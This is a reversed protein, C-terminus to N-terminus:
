TKEKYYSVKMISEGSLKINKIQKPAQKQVQLKQARKESKTSSESVRKL